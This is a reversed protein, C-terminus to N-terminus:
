AGSLHLVLWALGAGLLLTFLMTYLMPKIHIM